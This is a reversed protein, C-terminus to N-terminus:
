LSLTVRSQRACTHTAAHRRPPTVAPFGLVERGGFGRGWGSLAPQSATKRSVRACPPAHAACGQPGGPVSAGGASTMTNWTRPGGGAGSSQPRWRKTTRWEASPSQGRTQTDANNTSPLSTSATLANPSPSSTDQTEPQTLHLLCLDMQQRCRNHRGVCSIGKQAATRSVDRCQPCTM